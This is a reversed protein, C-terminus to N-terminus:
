TDSDEFTLTKCHSAGRESNARFRRLGRKSIQSRLNSIMLVPFASAFVYPQDPKAQHDARLICFTLTEQTTGREFGEAINNSISM